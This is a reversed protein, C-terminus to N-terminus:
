QFLADSGTAFGLASDLHTLAITWVQDNTLPATYTFQGDITESLPIGNCFLEGLLMESYGMIFYQEAIEAPKDPEAARIANIADRYFGRSRNLSPQGAPRGIARM